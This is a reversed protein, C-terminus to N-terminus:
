FLRAAGSHWVGLMYVEDTCPESGQVKLRYFLDHIWLLDNGADSIEHFRTVNHLVNTMHVHIQLGSSLFM